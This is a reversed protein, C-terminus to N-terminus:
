PLTDLLQQVLQMNAKVSLTVHMTQPGGDQSIAIPYVWHPVAHQDLLQRVEDLRTRAVRFFGGGREGLYLMVPKQSVPDLM